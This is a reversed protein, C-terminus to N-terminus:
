ISVIYIYRKVFIQLDELKTFEFINLQLSIFIEMFISKRSIIITNKGVKETVNDQFYTHSHSIHPADGPLVVCTKTKEGINWLIEAVSNWLATVQESETPKLLQEIPVSKEKPRNDFIFYKIIFAEIVSQLGRTANRPGLIISIM